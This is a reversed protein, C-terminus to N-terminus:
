GGTICFDYCEQFTDFGTANPPLGNGGSCPVDPCRSFGVCMYTGALCGYCQKLQPVCFGGCCFGGSCDSDSSCQPKNLLFTLDQGDKSEGIEM